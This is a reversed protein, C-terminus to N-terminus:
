SCNKQHIKLTNFQVEVAKSVAALQVEESPNKIYQITEGYNNVATLQMEKSQNHIRMISYANEKVAALQEQESKNNLNIM